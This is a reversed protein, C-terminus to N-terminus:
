PLDMTEPLSFLGTLAAEIAPKALLVLIAGIALCPGFALVRASSSNRIASLGAAVLGVLVAAFFTLVADVWGLVAGIAALLHVDGLGMAEKGFLVTGFIRVGWVVSAGIIYGMAVSSLAVLWLPASQEPASLRIAVAGGLWGLAIPAALYALERVMERRAYPYQIWMEPTESEGARAENAEAEALAEAEWQEYDAFSRGILGRSVLLWSLALGIATGLAAGAWWFM